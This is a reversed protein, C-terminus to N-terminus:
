KQENSSTLGNKPGFFDNSGVNCRQALAACRLFANLTFVTSFSKRVYRVIQSHISLTCCYLSKGFPHRIFKVIPQLVTCSSQKGNEGGEEEDEVPLQYNL